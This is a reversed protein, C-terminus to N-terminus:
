AEWTVRTPLDMAYAERLVGSAYLASSEKIENVLLPCITKLPSEPKLPLIALVQM